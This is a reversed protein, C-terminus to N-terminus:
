VHDNNGNPDNQDPNGTGFMSSSGQILTDQQAMVMPKLSQGIPTEFFEEAQKLAFDPINKDVM